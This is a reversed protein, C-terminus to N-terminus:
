GSSIETITAQRRTGLAGCESNAVAGILDRERVRPGLGHRELLLEVVAEHGNEAARSLPEGCMLKSTAAKMVIETIQIDDTSLLSEMVERGSYKNAAATKV